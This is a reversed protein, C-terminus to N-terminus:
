LETIEPEGPSWSRQPMVDLNTIDELLQMVAPAQSDVRLNIRQWFVKESLEDHIVQEGGDAASEYEYMDSKTIAYRLISGDAEEREVYLEDPTPFETDEMFHFDMPVPVYLRIRVHEEGEAISERLSKAGSEMSYQNPSALISLSRQPKDDIFPAAIYDDTVFIDVEEDEPFGKAELDAITQHDQELFFRVAQAGLTLIQNRGEEAKALLYERLAANLEERGTNSGPIEGLTM